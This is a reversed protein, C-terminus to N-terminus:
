MRNKWTTYLIGSQKYRPFVVFSPNSIDYNGERLGQIFDPCLKKKKMRGRVGDEHNEANYERGLTSQHFTLNRALQPLVNRTGHTHKKLHGNMNEFGFCSYSWLPGFNEVTQALHILSHVNMTCFEEPYLDVAKEYFLTLMKTATSLDSYCIQSGLLIHMAKVLLNLHHVYDMPLIEFLIPISYFLLWARLESAKWYM